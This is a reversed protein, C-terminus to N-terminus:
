KWRLAFMTADEENKFVYRFACRHSTASQECFWNTDFKFDRSDMGFHDLCWEQIKHHAFKNDAYITVVTM